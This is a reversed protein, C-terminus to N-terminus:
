RRPRAPRLPPPPARAPSALRSLTGTPAMTPTSAKLARSRTATARCRRRSPRPLLAAAPPPSMLLTPPDAALRARDRACPAGVLHARRCAPVISSVRGIHARPLCLPAPLLALLVACRSRRFWPPRPLPAWRARQWRACCRRRWGSRRLTCRMCRVCHEKQRVSGRATPCRRHWCRACWPLMPMACRAPARATAPLRPVPLHVLSTPLRRGGARRPRLLCASLSTLGTCCAPWLRGAAGGKEGAPLGSGGRRVGGEGAPLWGHAAGASVDRAAGPGGERACRM